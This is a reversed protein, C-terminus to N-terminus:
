QMSKQIYNIFKDIRALTNAKGILKITMDIPPSVTNGTLAIRLPPAIKGLGINLYQAMDHIVQHIEQAQWNEIVSFKEQILTLMNATEPTINKRMAEEDYNQVDIYFFNSKEAMERLTKCRERQATIVETLSPSVNTRINLQEFQWALQSVLHTIGITKLYHQNLWTLKTMDFSAAAKNLDNIDFLNIMEDLSFIEQNGHSWGLRVLYNLIAEPLFGQEKYEMINTAGHRKSLRKGDPGLIMPVHAFLPPQHNLAQYLNLQRPTNNIHDDGRIVHTIKMDIDDIVVSFNYTPMGDSRMLVLDDLEHNHFQTLGHVQDDFSVIGSDPNKFRIIVDPTTATLNKNRCHGDYRPKQKNAFQEDRLKQLREKSCDCYYAQGKHLLQQAIEKYRALYQTQYFPGEDPNLGLWSLGDLIAQASKETSREQDTDEIRLIFTGKTHKAYLWCYLATRVSGIHLTGTPSPAFRTRVAM